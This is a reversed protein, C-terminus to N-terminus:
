IFSPVGVKPCVFSLDLRGLLWGLMEVCKHSMKFCDSRWIYSNKHQNKSAHEQQTRTYHEQIKTNHKEGRVRPALESYISENMQVSALSDLKHLDKCPFQNQYLSSWPVWNQDKSWKPPTSHLGQGNPCWLTSTTLCKLSPRVVHYIAKRM